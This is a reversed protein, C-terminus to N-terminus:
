RRVTPRATCAVSGELVTQHGDPYTLEIQYPWSGGCVRPNRVLVHHIKRRKGHKGKKGKKKKVIRRAGFTLHLRDLHASFGAPPQLTFTFSTQYGFPGSAIPTVRGTSHGEDGTENVKFHAVVGATDGSRPPPALYLDITATVHFPNSFAPSTVTLEATGGGIRSQSPCRDADADARRCLKRVSKPDVSVGRTVRLVVSSPNQGGSSQDEDPRADITVHTGQGAVNPNISLTAPEGAAAPAALLGALALFITLARRM